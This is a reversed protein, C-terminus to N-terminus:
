SCMLWESHELYAVHVIYPDKLWNILLNISCKNVIIQHINWLFNFHSKGCGVVDDLQYGKDQSFFKTFSWVHVDKIVNKVHM